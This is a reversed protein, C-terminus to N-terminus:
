RLAVSRPPVEREYDATWGDNDCNEHKEAASNGTMQTNACLKHHEAALVM